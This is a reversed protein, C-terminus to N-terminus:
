RLERRRLGGLSTCVNLRSRRVRRTRSGDREAANAGVTVEHQEVTTTARGAVCGADDVDRGNRRSGNLADLDDGAASRRRIAGVGHGAHGVEDQLLVENTQLEVALDADRLFTVPELVLQRADHARVEVAAATVHTERHRHVAALGVQATRTAPVLVQEAIGTRGATRLEEDISRANKEVARADIVGRSE